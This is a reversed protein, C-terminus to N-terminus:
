TDLTSSQGESTRLIYFIDKKKTDHQMQLHNLVMQCVAALSVKTVRIPVYIIRQEDLYIKDCVLQKFILSDKARYM